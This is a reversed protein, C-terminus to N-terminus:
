KVSHSYHSGLTNVGGGSTVVQELAHIEGHKNKREKNKTIENRMDRTSQEGMLSPM